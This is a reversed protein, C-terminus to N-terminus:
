LNRIDACGVCLAEKAPEGRDQARIEKGSRVCLICRLVAGPDAFCGATDKGSRMGVSWEFFFMDYMEWNPRDAPVMTYTNRIWNWFHQRVNEAVEDRLTADLHDLWQVIEGDAAGGTQFLNPEQTIRTRFAARLTEIGSVCLGMDALFLATIDARKTCKWLKSAQRSKCRVFLLADLQVDIPLGGVM